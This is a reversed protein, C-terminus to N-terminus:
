GAPSLTKGLSRRRRAIFGLVGLGSLLMAYTEPEPVPNPNQDYEVVYGQPLAFGTVGDQPTDGWTSGISAYDYYDIAQNPLSNQPYGDPQNAGWPAYSFPEGSVWQWTANGTYDDSAYAGLWPGLFDHNISLATWYAPASILNFVFTNEAATTPSALYGGAAVAAAEADGWTIGNPVLVAEYWKGTASDFSAAASVIPTCSLVLTCAIVCLSTIRYRKAM